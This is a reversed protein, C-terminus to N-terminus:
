QKKSCKLLKKQLITFGPFSVFGRSGVELTVLQGNFRSDAVQDMLDAYRSVKRTHAAEYSTEFCVTLEIVWVERVSDSWVVIDPREDIQAIHPPFIYTQFEPLDAILKYGEPLTDAFFNALVGLVADHCENYRRLSLAKPCSNLVHLLTQREGCLKCSSSLSDNKRWRSLNENHPLTDQVANLSFKLLESPLKQVVSSWIRATDECCRFVQGQCQLSSAHKRCRRQM